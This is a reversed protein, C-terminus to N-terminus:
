RASSGSIASSSYSARSSSSRAISRSLGSSTVGSEGVWRTPASGTLASSLTRWGSGINESALARLASSSSAQAARIRLWRARSPISWFSNSYTQSGLTSPRAM